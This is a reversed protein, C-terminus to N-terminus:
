PLFWFRGVSATYGLTSDRLAQFNAQLMVDANKGSVSPSGSALKISPFDFVLTENNSDTRGLRIDFSTLTNNIIKDLVTKDGFYTSLTGTVAFEGDGIGVAGLTGVAIQRRLNNAYSFDARTVYNPGIIAAGAFGIRGVNSAANLVDNTPAVIDTAGAFRTTQVVADSGMYTKTFTAVKQADAAIAFKDITQGRLYEYTVPSHDLYQREITNSRKTSGNILFDGIFVQLTKAAGADAVWGVPVRDFSLRTATIASIRCWDNDVATALQNGAASGGVLVWQGIALGLTTFDLATSTLGNGGATVAVLDGAAGQFGVVRMAAGVPIAAVEATFSAAPFVVTTATSSAVRSVIANNAATPFGSTLVLMGTKFPTGLPTLVTATTTSLASIETAQTVVTILPNSVWTGQLAEELDDDMSLFSMEGGVDGGAQYGVLILDPVQRDSRIEQSTVTQPNLALSSSTQRIAKFAPTAPTVGFTAERARGLKVRNTSQLDVM